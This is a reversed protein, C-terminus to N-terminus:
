RGSLQARIWAQMSRPDQKQEAEAKLRALDAPPTTDARNTEQRATPPKPKPRAAAPPAPEEDAAGALQTLAIEFARALGRESNDASAAKRFTDLAAKYEPGYQAEVAQAELSIREREVYDLYFKVEDPAAEYAERTLAPPRKQAGAQLEALQRRIDGLERGQRSLAAEANRAKAEWDTDPQAEPAAEDSDDPAAPDAEEPVEIDSDDMLTDDTV